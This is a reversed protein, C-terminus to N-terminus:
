YTTNENDNVELCELKWEIKKRKLLSFKLKRINPHPERRMESNYKINLYLNCITVFSAYDKM